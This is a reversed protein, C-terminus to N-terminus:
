AGPIAPNAPQFEWLGLAGKVLIPDCPQPNSMVFGYKGAFWESDSETVCARLNMTGIISGRVLDRPTPIANALFPDIKSVFEVAESWERITMGKAAHIAILGRHRTPWDRNEIDKTGHMLLWAWPQRVTLCKM